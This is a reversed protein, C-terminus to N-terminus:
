SQNKLLVPVKYLTIHSIAKVKTQHAAMVKARVPRILINTLTTDILCGITNFVSDKYLARSCAKLM